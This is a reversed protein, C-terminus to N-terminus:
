CKLYQKQYDYLSVLIFCKSRHENVCKTWYPGQETPGQYYSTINQAGKDFAQRM